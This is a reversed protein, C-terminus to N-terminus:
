SILGNSASSLYSTVLNPWRSPKLPTASQPMSPSTLICSSNHIHQKRLQHIDALLGPPQPEEQLMSCDSTLEQTELRIGLWRTGSITLLKRPRVLRSHKAKTHADQTLGIKLLQM